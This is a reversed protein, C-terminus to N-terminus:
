QRNGQARARDDQREMNILRPRGWNDTRLVNIFKVGYIIAIISAIALGAYVLIRIGLPISTLSRHVLLILMTDFFIRIFMKVGLSLERERLSKGYPDSDSEEGLAWYTTLHIISQTVSSMLLAWVVILQFEHEGMLRLDFMM